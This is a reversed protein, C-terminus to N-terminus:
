MEFYATRMPIRRCTGLLKEMLRRSSDTLVPIEIETGEGYREAAKQACIQLM